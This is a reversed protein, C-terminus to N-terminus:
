KRSKKTKSVQKKKVTESTKEGAIMGWTLLAGNMSTYLGYRSYIQSSWAERLADSLPKGKLTTDPVVPDSINRVFVFKTKEEQAVLGVLADDMELCSYQVSNDGHSIYYFDTTLLPVGKRNLGKPNTLNAPDLAANMLDKVTVTGAWVPNGHQPDYIMQCLMYQLQKNNVVTSLPFLLKKEIGPVLDMNPFWKGKITKGQINCIDNEQKELMIHGANTVVTDGLRYELTSGGATGISYLYTPRAEKLMLKIMEILGTCYPPYALHANAKFLLVKLSKGSANKIKVMRYFAWLNFTNDPQDNSRLHWTQQYSNDKSSREQNSNLFVHDLASWEANTWTMVVVDAKPLPDDKGPKGLDVVTPAKGEVAAWDIVPLPPLDGPYICPHPQADLQRNAM